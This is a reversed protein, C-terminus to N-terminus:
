SKTMTFILIIFLILGLMAIFLITSDSSTSIVDKHSSIGKGSCQPCCRKDDNFTYLWGTGSCRPCPYLQINM